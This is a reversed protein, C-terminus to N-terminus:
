NMACAVHYERCIGDLLANAADLAEKARELAVTASEEDVILTELAARTDAAHEVDVSKHLHFYGANAQLSAYHAKLGEIKTEAVAPIQSEYCYLSTVAALPSEAALREFSAIGRATEPLCPEAAVADRTNGLSDSFRLWLEPHDVPGGTEEAYNDELLRRLDGEPLREIASQLYGPFAAIHRYYQRAYGALQDGTLTGATWAQYFPHLLLSREAVLADIRTLTTAALTM